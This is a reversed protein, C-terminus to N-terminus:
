RPAVELLILTYELICSTKHDLKNRSLTLSDSGSSRARVHFLAVRYTNQTRVYACSKRNCM